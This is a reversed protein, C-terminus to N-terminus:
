IPTMVHLKGDEGRVVEPKSPPRRLEFKGGKTEQSADPYKQELIQENRELVKKRLKHYDDRLKKIESLEENLDKLEIVLNYYDDIRSHDERLQEIHFPDEELGNDVKELWKLEAEWSSQLNKLLSESVAGGDIIRSEGLQSLEAKKGTNLIATFDLRGKSQSFQEEATVIKVDVGKAPTIRSSVEEWSKKASGFVESPLIVVYRNMYDKYSLKENEARAEFLRRNNLALDPSIFLLGRNTPIKVGDKNYASIARGSWAPDEAPVFGELSSAPAAFFAGHIYSGLDHEDGKWVHFSVRNMDFPTDYRIRDKEKEDLERQSPSVITGTSIVKELAKKESTHPNHIDVNGTFGHILVAGELLAEQTLQREKIDVGEELSM